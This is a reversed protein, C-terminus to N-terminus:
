TITQSRLAPIVDKSGNKCAFKTKVDKLSPQLTRSLVEIVKSRLNNIDDTSLLVCNGEGIEAIQEVFGKDCDNGIGFTHILTDSDKRKALEICDQRM